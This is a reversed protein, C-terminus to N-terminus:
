SIGVGVLQLARPTPLGRLVLGYLLAFIGTNAGIGLALTLIATISLVPNKRLSRLGIRVDRFIDHLM